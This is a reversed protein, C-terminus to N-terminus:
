KSAEFLKMVLGGIVSLIMTISLKVWGASSELKSIRQADGDLRDHLKDLKQEIRDLQKDMRM